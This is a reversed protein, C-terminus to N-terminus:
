EKIKANELLTDHVCYPRLFFTNSSCTLSTDWDAFIMFLVYADQSVIKHACWWGAEQTDVLNYAGQPSLFYYNKKIIRDLANFKALM